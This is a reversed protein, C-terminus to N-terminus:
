CVQMPWQPCPEFLLQPKCQDKYKWPDDRFFGPNVTFSAVDPYRVALEAAYQTLVFKSFSYRHGACM